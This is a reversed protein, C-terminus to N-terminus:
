LLYYTQSNFITTCVLLFYRDEPDCRLYHYICAQHFKEMLEWNDVQGHRLPYTTTYAKSLALAEHGISYELDAISRKQGVGPAFNPKYSVVTPIIYQPCSNGAYGMKTYRNTEPPCFDTLFLLFVSICLIFFSM